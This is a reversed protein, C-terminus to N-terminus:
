ETGARGSLNSFFTRIGVFVDRYCKAVEGGSLRCDLYVLFNLAVLVIVVLLIARVSDEKWPM